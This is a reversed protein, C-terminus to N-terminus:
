PRMSRSPTTIANGTNGVYAIVEGVAVRQNPQAVNASNHAYYYRTGSDGRLLKLQDLLRDLLQWNERAIVGLGIRREGGRSM